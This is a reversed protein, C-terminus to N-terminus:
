KVRLNRSSYMHQISIELLFHDFHCSVYARVTSVIGSDLMWDTPIKCEKYPLMSSNRLKILRNM